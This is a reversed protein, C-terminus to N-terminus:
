DPPSHHNSEANSLATNKPKWIFLWMVLWAIPLGLSIPLALSFWGYHSSIEGIAVFSLAIGLNAVLVPPWFLRAPFRYVGAILVSAEALVPFGRLAVIPWVGWKQIKNEASHLSERSCLWHAVPWGFRSGLFYGIWTSGNLGLWCVVTGSVTGLLRGALTCIASSPIPLLIDSTLSAIILLGTLSPRSALWEQEFLRTTWDELQDGFLLFPGIPILLTILIM